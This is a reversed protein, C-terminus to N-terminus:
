PPEQSTTARGTRVPSVTVAVVSLDVQGAPRHDSHRIAGCARRVTNERGGLVRGSRVRGSRVRGGLVRGGLVRGSRV